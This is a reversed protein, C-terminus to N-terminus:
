NFYVAMGEAYREANRRSHEIGGGPLAWVIEVEGRTGINKAKLRFAGSIIDNSELMTQYELDKTINARVRSM